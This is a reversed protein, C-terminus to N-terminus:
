VWDSDKGAGLGGSGGGFISFAGLGGGGLAKGALGAVLNAGGMLAGFRNAAAQQGAMLGQQGVTSLGKATDTSIGVKAVGTQFGVNGLGTEAGAQGSVAAARKTDLNALNALWNNYDQSALGSAFRMADSDANGSALTGNVARARALAKLGEDMNFTYGAGTTYASRAATSADAGNM